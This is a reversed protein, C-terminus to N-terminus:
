SHPGRHRRGDSRAERQATTRKGHSRRPGHAGQPMGPCEGSGRTVTGRLGGHLLKAMGARLLSQKRREVFGTGKRRAAEREEKAQRAKDIRLDLATKRAVPAPSEPKPKPKPASKSKSAAELKEAEAKRFLEDHMDAVEELTLSRLDEVSMAMIQQAAKLGEEGLAPVAEVSDSDIGTDEISGTTQLQHLQDRVERLRQECATLKSRGMDLTSELNDLIEDWRHEGEEDRRQDAKILLMRVHSITAIAEKRSAELREIEQTLEVESKSMYCEKGLPM